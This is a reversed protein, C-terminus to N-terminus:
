DIARKLWELDKLKVGFFVKRILLYQRLGIALVVGASVILGYGAIMVFPFDLFNLFGIGGGFLGLATRSYSLLTRDNSMMSRAIALVDGTLEPPIPRSGTRNEIM